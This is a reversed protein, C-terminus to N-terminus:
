HKLAGRIAEALERVMLPKMLLAKIVAPDIGHGTDTVTVRVYRGPKLDGGFRVDSAGLEVDAMRIQLIGGEREMAHAANTCLNMLVQQMQTPDAVIAGSASEIYHQLQAELKEKEQANLVRETIDQVVSLMHRPVGEPSRVLRVTVDGWVVSGDRRIYRKQFQAQGTKGDVLERVVSRTHRDEPHTVDPVSRGVLEREPYGLFRCFAENCRLYRYDLDSMTQGIPSFDFTGRFVEENQRLAIEVRERESIESRLRTTKRRATWASSLFAVLFTTFV